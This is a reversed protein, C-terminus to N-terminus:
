LPPEDWYDTAPRERFRRTRARFRRPESFSQELAQEDLSRAVADQEGIAAMAEQIQYDAAEDRMWDEETYSYGHNDVM